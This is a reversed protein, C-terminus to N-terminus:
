ERLIREDIANIISVAEAMLAIAISDEEVHEVAVSYAHELAAKARRLLAEDSRSTWGGHSCQPKGCKTCYSTELAM